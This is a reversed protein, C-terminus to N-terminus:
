LEDLAMSLRLAYGDKEVIEGARAILEDLDDRVHIMRGSLADAEGSALRVCLKAADDATFIWSEDMGDYDPDQQRLQADVERTMDTWVFGPSITFVSVDSGAASEAACDSLRMLAAKSTSYASAQGNPSVGIYSGVNIICGRRERVMGPLVAHMALFPGKLNVEIVRWWDECDTEWLPGNGGGIGANNVLLSVPGWADEVRAVAKHISGNGIVDCSIAMATGGAQEISDVAQQLLEDSRGLVAVSAGRAALMEAISRGLGRGGGTVIAVAGELSPESM